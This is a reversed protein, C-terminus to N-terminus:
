EREEQASSGAIRVDTEKTTGGGDDSSGRKNALQTRAVEGRRRQEPSVTM